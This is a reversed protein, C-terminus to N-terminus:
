LFIPRGLMSSFQPRFHEIDYSTSVDVTRAGQAPDPLATHSFLGGQVCVMQDTKGQAILEVALAGFTNAVVKDLADPNGSRLDYTADQPRTALGTIRTIAQALATGVNEKKRHGYADAPGVEKLEGGKWIAGESVLVM